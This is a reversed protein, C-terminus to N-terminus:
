FLDIEGHPIRASIGSLEPKSLEDLSLGRWIDDYKVSNFGITCQDMKRIAIIINACRQEIRDQAQLGIIIRSAADQRATDSVLTEDMLINLAENIDSVMERTQRITENLETELKKLAM